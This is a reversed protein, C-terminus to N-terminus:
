ASRQHPSLSDQRRRLELWAVAQASAAIVVVPGAGLLFGDPRRVFLVGLVVAILGLVVLRYGLYVLVMLWGPLSVLWRGPAHRPLPRALARRFTVRSGWFSGAALLAFLVGFIGRVVASGHLAVVVLTVWSCCFIGAVLSYWWPIRGVHSTVAAM